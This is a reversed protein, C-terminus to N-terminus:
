RTCYKGLNKILEALEKKGADDKVTSAFNNIMSSTSALCSGANVRYNDRVGETLNQSAVGTSFIRGINLSANPNTKDKDPANVKAISDFSGFVSFADEKKNEDSAAALIILPDTSLLKTKLATDANNFADNAAAIKSADGNNKAEQLKGRAHTVNKYLFHLEAIAGGDGNNGNDVKNRGEIKITKCNNKETNDCSRSKVAVPVYAVDTQKYGIHLDVGPQNPTAAAVGVGISIQASYVLAAQEMACGSLLLAAFPITRKFVTLTDM